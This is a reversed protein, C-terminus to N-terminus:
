AVRQADSGIAFRGYRAQRHGPAAAATLLTDISELLFAAAADLAAPDGSTRVAGVAQALDPALTAFRVAAEIVIPAGPLVAGDSVRQLTVIHRVAPDLPPWDLDFSCRGSGDGVQTLDPRSRNAVIRAVVAGDVMVDLAVPVDPAGANVAWGAIGRRNARDVRGDLEGLAPNRWPDALGARSAIAAQIAALTAGDEVRSAYFAPEGDPVADPYLAHYEHANQFMQRCDRDLFSEAAVGEALVVDHSDLEVNFYHVTADPPATTISAGNVLLRAEVLVGHLFLAHNPSLLLDRAPLGAALAGAAIRVPWVAPNNRAFAPGYSRRGIWRIPRVAGSLTVIRDGIQLTEVPVAGHEAEILTGRAFCATETLEVGTTGDPSLSFTGAPTGAFIFSATTTGSTITEVTNGGSMTASLTAGASIVTEDIIDGPGFGSIVAQDGYGASSLDTVELTGGSTFTLSGSVVAKPSQLELTGGSLVTNYATANGNINIAGGSVVTTASAVAGKLFLDLAGGSQVTEGSVVASGYSLLQTGYIQDANASGSVNESGGALITASTESGYILASGGNSITTGSDTGSVIASGGSLITTTSVVGGSLVTLTAGSSVTLGTSTQGGSVTLSGGSTTGGSYALEEGGHGDSMLMLGAPPTGAFTFAETAAGSTVTYVTNGGSTATTLTATAFTPLDIVDGSTFGSNVALDGYTASAAASEVIEGGAFTVSGSLVAKASQMVITGGSLVTNEAAANGSINLDGGALVTTGSAVASKLFLDLAGGSHVTEGSVVATAASVVQSGYIQDTTASGLVTETGGVSITTGSDTGSIVASGGSLITADVLTGGSLVTVVGGSGVVLNSTIQGSSVTIAGMAASVIEVGGSGNGALALNSVVPGAFIFSQSTGGSTITEVTHGGSTTASLTAGTGIVTDDISDGAGFGSIVALDGYGASATDTIELTGPGSFILAAALTAKPSELDLVGGALVIDEGTANGSINLEGGSAVTVAGAIAGKLFLDIAGGSQVTENSVVANGASVLQTGAVQDGDATGSVTEYGGTLITASTEGGGLQITASGGASVTTASDQGTVILSGGSLVTTSVVAGGAAVSLTAGSSVTLSSSTTGSGITSSTTTPPQYAIVEGGSGDSTLTLSSAVSGAFTFSETVGGSTITADTNGGSLVTTLMADAGIATVDIVDGAGFGSIVAQDGYGASSIATVEIEGGGAFLVTGSLTAEASQLTVLGSSIVTGQATAAASVNLSGGTEITIASATAGAVVLDVAGGNYVTESTAVATAASLTQTGEVADGIATGLLTEVAGQGIIMATDSGGASIVASAGSLLTGSIAAGGALVTLTSGASIVFDSDTTSVTTNAPTITAASPAFAIGRINTDAAASILVSFTENPPATTASLTDTITYLYTQDLDGLTANTAYLTVEGGNVVGTLGILGTTGSTATDPVLNLGETLTYDLVWTGNVLSWKQLGGDGLGGEKPNGGDAIYLTSSNAFFYNEPSLNVSSGIAAANVTNATAATLVVSGDIGPLPSPTTASTPLTSGYDSINSTGGAGQTSDRSVYLQGNVIEVTRTDTSTDIPTASSAGDDALFVGQTTDGKLGQGSLYFSTGNVTAISRPNNENDVNYLATSTDVTTNYSIDAIVRAVATYPGGQVSTSQALAANGYVAAGGANYTAANVGYGAIVLSEGNAALELTGESSSGYEGSIAYETTGKVVTTTQPLVLEGEITGTTTLEYLTIPSAQNDTYTGSDNGDGVVSIVLDGATFSTLTPYPESM